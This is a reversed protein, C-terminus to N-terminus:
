FMDNNQLRTYIYIKKTVKKYCKKTVKYGFYNIYISKYHKNKTKNFNYGKITISKFYLM